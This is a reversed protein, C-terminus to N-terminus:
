NLPTRKILVYHSMIHDNDSILRNLVGSSWELIQARVECDFSIIDIQGCM